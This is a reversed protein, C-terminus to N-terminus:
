FPSSLIWLISKGSNKHLARTIKLSAVRNRYFIAIITAIKDRGTARGKEGGEGAPSYSLASNPRDRKKKDSECGIGHKVTSLKDGNVGMYVYIYMCIMESEIIEIACRKEM